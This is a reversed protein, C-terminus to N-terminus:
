LILGSQIMVHVYFSKIELYKMIIDYYATLEAEIDNYQTYFEDNKAKRAQALNVNSM